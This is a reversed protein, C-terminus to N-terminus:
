HESLRFERIPKLLVNKFALHPLSCGLTHSWSTCLERIPQHHPLLATDCPNVNDTRLSWYTQPSHAWPRWTTLKKWKTTTRADTFCSLFHADFVIIQTSRLPVVASSMPSPDTGSLGRLTRSPKPIMFYSTGQWSYPWYRSFLLHETLWTARTTIPVLTVNCDFKMTVTWTSPALWPQEILLLVMAKIPLVGPPLLKFRCGSRKSILM